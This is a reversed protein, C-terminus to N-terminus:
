SQKKLPRRLKSSPVPEPKLTLLESIRQRITSELMANGDGRAPTQYHIFGQRDILVLQPVVPREMISFEMFRPMDERRVWGVPFGVQFKDKFASVLADAAKTERGEDLGDIALDLVQLGRSGMESQLKTMLHSAAQCHMCTTLVFELAVVKGKYQSLTKQGSDPLNFTLEPAKRLAPPQGEVSGISLLTLVALFIRSTM